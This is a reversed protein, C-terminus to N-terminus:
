APVGTCLWADRIIPRVNYGLATLMKGCLRALEPTHVALFIIPRSARIVKAGGRLVRLEAGEVDIKLYDPAPVTGASVLGDLTVTRVSRSGDKSLAGGFGSREAAFRATGARDAVAATIVTVNRAGNLRLHRRLHALNDTDPEFAVVRGAPGVLSSALLSYYGAHAGIDFFVGGATVSKTIARQLEAEYTGLWHGHVGSAVIWQRGRLPGTLIPLVSRRPILRLPLRAIKGLVTTSPIRALGGRKTAGADLAFRTSM